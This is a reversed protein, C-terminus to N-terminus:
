PEASVRLAALGAELGDGAAGAAAAAPRLPWVAPEFVNADGAANVEIHDDYVSVIGFCDQGPETELLARCVRHHIGAEDCHYGDQHAHGALTAAVVDGHDQLVALVADYNYLLCAPACTEPHMCVHCCVIAREGAARAAGLEAALWRLQEGGVGGGFKVFRRAVGELGANSNKEANPNREALLAVAAEHLPHGAPWGLLSIDYGDLVLIRWGPTPPRFAFYSHASGALAAAAKHSEIGLRENLEPRSANYLCHNGICHLVPRSGLADFVACAARLAADSAAPGALSNHYDVIDGLHVALDVDASIFADVARKAAVLSHRYYRPTGHFSKGDELDGWQLDSVLGFKFLPRHPVVVPLAM